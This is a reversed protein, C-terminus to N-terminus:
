RAVDPEMRASSREASATVGMASSDDPENWLDRFVGLWPEYYHWRNLSTRYVPQRAQWASATLIQRRTEHPSLCGEDWELGCFAVIRRSVAERDAVMEAYDVELLRDAPLVTRWYRMIRRYENYYFVITDRDYSYDQGEAFTTFYNSLAVDVPDRRCHVIRADPFLAHILGLLLFNDPQKDTVRAASRSIGDLIELYRRELERAGTLDGNEASTTIWPAGERGWFPLEGGPAISPHSALVQEVLTTGSRPMGVIILPRASSSAAERYREITDVGFTSIIRDIQGSYQSRDLRHWRRALENGRDFYGIAEEYRGLDDCAKGIAFCLNCREKDSLDATGLLAVMEDVIELDEVRMRRCNSLVVYATETRDSSQAARRFSQFAEDFHGWMRFCYGLYEHLDSRDPALAVTRQMTTIATDDGAAVQARALGYLAAISDSDLALADRYHRIAEATEGQELLVNGTNVLPNVEEPKLSRARQYAFLADGFRKQAQWTLGLNNWVDPQDPKLGCAAGFHSAAEVHQEDTLYLLGLNMHADYRPEERLAAEFARVAPEPDGNRRLLEGLNVLADASRPQLKLARRVFQIGERVQGQQGLVVGLLHQADFQRPEAALVAEYCRRAEALQGAQHAEFGQRLWNTVEAKQRREKPKPSRSM